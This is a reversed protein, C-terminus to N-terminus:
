GAQEREIRAILKRLALRELDGKPTTAPGIISVEVGTLSDIAAVKVSRGIMTHEFYVQRQEGTM